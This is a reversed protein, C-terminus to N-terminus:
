IQLMCVTVSFHSDSVCITLRWSFICNSQELFPLFQISVLRELTKSLFSLNSIPRYNQCVNPDLNPKKLTPFVIACKQSSPLHGEQLSRNFMYLLFDIIDDIIDVIIFPPLSDLECSKLNSSSIVRRLESEVIPRFGDFSAETTSYQPPSSGDTSARLGEIKDTLMQLFDQASFPPPAASRTSHGLLGSISSWLRKPNKENRVVLNEWYEAEKRRYLRHLVRLQAIWAQRDDVDKTRRYRRELCRVRRRFQRCEGDFWAALPRIRTKIKKRPLMKDLLGTMTSSYLDFLESVSLADLTSTDSCLRSSRLATSFAQRDLSKWGRTMRISHIPQSHLPPLTFEVLSHDSTVPPHVRLEQALGDDTTIVLDLIGGLLHTSEKVHQLLGFHSLLDMLRVTAPDTPDELHINFDGLITLQTNRTILSELVSSLEEFFKGTPIVSGPRYVSLVTTSGHPTAISLCLAEFTTIQMDLHIQSSRLSSRLFVVIGGGRTPQGDPHPARPRDHITYGPPAARLVPVDDSCRHWSETVALLDLQRELLTHAVYAFKDTLSRANWTAMRLGPLQSLDTASSVSSSHLGADTSSSSSVNPPSDPTLTSATSSAITSASTACHM